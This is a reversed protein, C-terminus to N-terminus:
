LKRDAIVKDVENDSVVLGKSEAKKIMLEGWIRRHTMYVKRSAKEKKFKIVIQEDTLDQLRTTM